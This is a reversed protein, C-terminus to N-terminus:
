VKEVKVVDGFTGAEVVSIKYGELTVSENLKLPADSLVFAGSNVPLIRSEPRVVNIGGDHRTDASNVLYVLAGESEKSLKYNAGGARHSEIAIAKTSSIPVVLMKQFNGFYEMPKIWNVTPANPNTCIVQSDGIMKTLWKDWVLFDTQMGSMHGWHGSGLNPGTTGAEDGLHDTLLGNAHMFEHLHLWPDAGMTSLRDVLRPVPWIYNFRVTGENTRMEDMRFSPSHPIYDHATNFPVVQIAMTIGTFDINKDAAQYFETKYKEIDMKKWTYYGHTTVGPLSYDTIPKGIEIYKNPVIFNLRTNGDSIKYFMDKIFKFYIKYDEAPNSSSPYDSFQMPIVQLNIDGAFNWNENGFGVTRYPTVTKVKCPEVNTPSSTLATKPKTAPLPIDVFRIPHACRNMSYMFEQIQVFEKPTLPDPDCPKRFNAVKIDGPKAMQWVLKGKVKKCVMMQGFVMGNKQCRDGINIMASAPTTVVISVLLAGIAVWSFKKMQYGYIVVAVIPLM